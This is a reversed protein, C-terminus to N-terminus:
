HTIWGRHRDPPQGRPDIRASRRRGAKRIYEVGEPTISVAAEGKALLRGWELLDSLRAATEDDYFGLDRCLRDIPYGARADGECLNYLHFLVLFADREAQERELDRVRKSRCEFETM